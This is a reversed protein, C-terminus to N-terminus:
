EATLDIGDLAGEAAIGIAGIDEHEEGVDAAADVAEHGLDEFVVDALVHHLRALGREGRLLYGLVEDVQDV